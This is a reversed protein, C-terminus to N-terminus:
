RVIMPITEATSCPRFAASFVMADAPTLLVAAETVMVLQDDTLALPGASAHPVSKTM